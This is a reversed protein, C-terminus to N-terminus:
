RRFVFTFGGVKLGHQIALAAATFVILWIVFSTHSSGGASRDVLMSQQQGTPAYGFGAGYDADTLFVDGPM